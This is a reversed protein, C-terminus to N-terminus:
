IRLQPQVLENILMPGEPFSSCLKVASLIRDKKRIRFISNLNRNNNFPQSGWWKPCHRKINCWPGLLQNTALSTNVSKVDSVALWSNPGNFVNCHHMDHISGTIWLLKGIPSTFEFVAETKRTWSWNNPIETIWLLNKDGQVLNPGFKAWKNPSIM